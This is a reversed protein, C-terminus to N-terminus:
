VNFTLNIRYLLNQFSDSNIIYIVSLNAFYSSFIGGQIIHGYKGFLCYPYYMDPYYLYDPQNSFDMELSDPQHSPIFLANKARFEHPFHGKINSSKTTHVEREDLGRTQKLTTRYQM